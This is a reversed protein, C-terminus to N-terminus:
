VNIAVYTLLLNNFVFFDLLKSAQNKQKINFKHNYNTV